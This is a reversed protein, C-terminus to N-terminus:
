HFGAVRRTGQVRVRVARRRRGQDEPRGPRGPHAGATRQGAVHRFGLDWMNRTAFLNAKAFAQRVYAGLDGDMAAWVHDYDPFAYGVGTIASVPTLGSIIVSSLITFELAGSRTQSLMDTAGGLQNNPFLQLNVRGNTRKAIAQSAEILRVHTPHSEVSEHGLKLNFEATQAAAQGITRATALAAASWGLTRRTILTM